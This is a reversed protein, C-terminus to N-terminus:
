IKRLKEMAHNVILCDGYEQLYERNYDSSQGFEMLRARMSEVQMKGRARVSDLVVLYFAGNLQFLESLEETFVVNKVANLLNLPGDFKITYFIYDAEKQPEKTEKSGLGPNHDKIGREAAMNSGIENLKNYFGNMMEEFEEPDDPIEGDGNEGLLEESVILHVGKPHPQVQFTLLGTQNFRNELGLEEVLEYFLQEIVQQNQFFDSLKVDHDSLDEFTLSIKITNENINEFKM